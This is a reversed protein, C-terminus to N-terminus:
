RVLLALMTDRIESLSFAFHKATIKLSGLVRLLRLTDRGLRNVRVSDGHRHDQGASVDPCGRSPFDAARHYKGCRVLLGHRHSRFSACHSQIYEGGGASIDFYCDACYFQGPLRRHALWASQKNAFLEDTCRRDDGPHMIRRVVVLPTLHTTCSIGCHPYMRNISCRVPRQAPRYSKTLIRFEQDTYCLVFHCRRVLHKAAPSTLVIVSMASACVCVLITMLALLPLQPNKVAIWLQKYDLKIDSTKYFAQPWDKGPMRGNPSSGAADRQRLLIGAFYRLRKVRAPYGNKHLRLLHDVLAKEQQPTLLQQREAWQRRTQRGHARHWRTSVPITNAQDVVHTGPAFHMELPSRHLASLQQQRQVIRACIDPHLFASDACRSPLRYVGV